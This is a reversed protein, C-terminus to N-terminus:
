GQPALSRTWKVSTGSLTKDRVVGAAANQPRNTSNVDSGLQENPLAMNVQEDGRDRSSQQQSSSCASVLGAIVIALISLVKM